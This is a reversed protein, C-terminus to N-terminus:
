EEVEEKTDDIDKEYERERKAQERDYIEWMDYNDPIYDRSM